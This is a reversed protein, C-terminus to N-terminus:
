VPGAKDVLHVGLPLVPFQLWIAPTAESMRRRYPKIDGSLGQTGTSILDIEQYVVDARFDVATVPDQRRFRDAFVPIRQLDVLFDGPVRAGSRL